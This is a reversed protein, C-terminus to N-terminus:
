LAAYISLLSHELNITTKNQKSKHDAGKLYPRPDKAEKEGAYMIHHRM